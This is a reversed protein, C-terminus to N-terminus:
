AFLLGPNYRYISCPRGGTQYNTNAILENNQRLYSLYRQVTIRSLNVTGVIDDCSFCADPQSNFVARISNLTKKQLGKPLEPVECEAGKLLWDVKEQTLTGRQEVLQVRHLFRAIAQEFRSTDFPDVLCDVVGLRMVARLTDCDNRAVYAIVETRVSNLRLERILEVGTEPNTCLDVLLLDAPHREFYQSSIMENFSLMEIQFRNDRIMDTANSNLGRFGRKLVTMRYM